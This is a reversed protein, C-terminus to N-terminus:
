AKEKTKMNELAIGKYYSIDESQVRTFIDQFREFHSLQYYNNQQIELESIRQAYFINGEPVVIVLVSDNWFEKVNQIESARIMPPSKGRMKVEVLMVNQDDYVLLDPSSRIRRGTKSNRTEKTLRSRVDSLTSEYGYPCVSYGSKQLMVKIMDKYLSGKLMNDYYFQSLKESTGKRQPILFFFIIFKSNVNTSFAIITEERKNTKTKPSLFVGIEMWGYPQILYHRGLGIKTGHKKEM